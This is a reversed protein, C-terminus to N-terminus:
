VLWGCLPVLLLQSASLHVCIWLLKYSIFCFYQFSEFTASYIKYKAELILLSVKHCQWLGLMPNTVFHSIWFGMLGFIHKPTFCMRECIPPFHLPHLGIVGLHGGVKSTVNTHSNHINLAKTIFAFLCRM